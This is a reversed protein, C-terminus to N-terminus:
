ELENAEYFGASGHVEGDVVEGFRVFTSYQGDCDLDGFASITFQANPGSPISDYQYSYRHPDTISFQLATWTPSAAWVQASTSVAEGCPVELPTRPASPPFHPAVANGQADSFDAAYYAASVDYLRRLSMTAERTKVRNVYQQFAPIAVAAILPYLVAGAGLSELQLQMTLTSWAMAL